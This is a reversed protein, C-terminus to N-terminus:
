FLDIADSQLVRQRCPYLCNEAHRYEVPLDVLLIATSFQYRVPYPQVKGNIYRQCQQYEPNPKPPFFPPVHLMALVQFTM